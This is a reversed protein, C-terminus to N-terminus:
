CCKAAFDWKCHLPSKQFAVAPTAVSNRVVLVKLHIGSLGFDTVNSLYLGMSAHGVDLVRMVAVDHPSEHADKWPQVIRSGIEFSEYQLAFQVEDEVRQFVRYAFFLRLNHTIKWYRFPGPGFRAHPM